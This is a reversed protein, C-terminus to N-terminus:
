CPSRSLQLRSGTGSVIRHTPALGDRGDPVTSPAGFQRHADVRSGVCPLFVDLAHSAPLAKLVVATKPAPFVSIGTTGGRPVWGRAVPLPLGRRAAEHPRPHNSHRLASAAFLRLDTRVESAKDIKMNTACRLRRFSLICCGTWPHELSPQGVARFSVHCRFLRGICFFSAHNLTRM